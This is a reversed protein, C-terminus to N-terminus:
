ARSPRLTPDREAIMAQVRDLHERTVSRAQTALLAAVATRQRETMSGILKNERMMVDQLFEHARRRGWKPQSLLITGISMGEIEWWSSLIVEAATLHGSAIRRKV